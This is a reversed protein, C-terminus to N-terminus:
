IVRCIKNVVEKGDDTAILKLKKESSSLIKELSAIMAHGNEIKLPGTWGIKILNDLVVIFYRVNEFSKPDYDNM